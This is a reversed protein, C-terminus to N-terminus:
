LGSTGATSTVTCHGQTMNEDLYRQINVNTVVYVLCHFEMMCDSMSKFLTRLTNKSTNVQRRCGKSSM